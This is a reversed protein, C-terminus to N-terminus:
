LTPNEGIENALLELADDYMWFSPNGSAKGDNEICKYGKLGGNELFTRFDTAALTAVINNAEYIWFGHGKSNKGGGYMAITGLAAFALEVVKIKQKKNM